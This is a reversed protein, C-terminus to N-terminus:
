ANNRRMRDIDLRQQDLLQQYESAIIKGREEFLIQRAKANKLEPADKDFTRFGLPVIMYDYGQSGDSNQKRTFRSVGPLNKVTRDCCPAYGSGDPLNGWIVRILLHESQRPEKIRFCPEHEHWFLKGFLVGVDYGGLELNMDEILEPLAQYALPNVPKDDLDIDLVRPVIFTLSPQDDGYCKVYVNMRTSHSVRDAGIANRVAMDSFRNRM